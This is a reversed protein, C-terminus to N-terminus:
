NSRKKNKLLNVLYKIFKRFNAGVTNAIEMLVKIYIGFLIFAIAIGLFGLSEFM